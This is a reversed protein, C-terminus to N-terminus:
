QNARLWDAVYLVTNVYVGSKNYRMIVARRAEEDMAGGQWGHAKLYNGISFIADARDFMDVRGDGSGDVGYKLVNSPMFQGYGIAGYISGPFTNPDHDNKFSYELLAALEDAAWGGRKVATDTLWARAGADSKVLDAVAEEVVEFDYRAAAMSALQGAARHKGFYNGYGTEVWMIGAAVEGPVGYHRSMDTFLNRDAMYHALIKPLVDARTFQPYTASRSPKQAPPPSYSSLPRVAGSTLARNLSALTADSLEGTQSQGGAAQFRKVTNRTGSGARGDIIIDYGLQYLKEQIERTLESKYYIGFLERLKTEMPGSTYVLEPATFFDELRRASLGRGAMDNALRRFTESVEPSRPVNAPPATIEYSAPTNTTRTSAGIFSCGACAFVAIALTAFIKKM